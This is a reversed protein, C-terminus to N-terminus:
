PLNIGGVMGLQCHKGVSCYYYIPDTNTVNVVFRLRGRDSDSYPGSYFGDANPTCPSSFDGQVVNHTAYLHVVTDGKEAPTREPVFVLSGNNGVEVFHVAAFLLRSYGLLLLTTLHM